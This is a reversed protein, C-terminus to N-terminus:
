YPKFFLNAKLIGHLFTYNFLRSQNKKNIIIIKSRKKEDERQSDLAGGAGAHHQDGVKFLKPDLFDLFRGWKRNQVEGSRSFASSLNCVQGPRTLDRCM